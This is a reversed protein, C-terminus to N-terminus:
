DLLAALALQVNTRVELWPPRSRLVGAESRIRARLKVHTMGAEIRIVLRVGRELDRTFISLGYETDNAM